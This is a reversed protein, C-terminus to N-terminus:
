LVLNVVEYGSEVDHSATEHGEDVRHILLLLEPWLADVHVDDVRTPNV